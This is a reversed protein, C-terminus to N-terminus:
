QRAQGAYEEAKDRVFQASSSVADSARHYAHSAADRFHGRRISDYETTLMYAVAALASGGLLLTLLKGTGHGEDEEPFYEEVYDPAAHRARHLLRGASDSARDRLSSASDTLSEYASGLRDSASKRLYRRRSHGVDPDLLYMAAAGVALGGLLTTFGTAAIPLASRVRSRLHRGEYEQQSTYRSM